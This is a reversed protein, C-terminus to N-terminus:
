RILFNVKLSEHRIDLLVDCPLDGNICVFGVHPVIGCVTERVCLGKYLLKGTEYPTTRTPVRTLVCNLDVLRATLM